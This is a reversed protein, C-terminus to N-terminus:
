ELTGPPMNMLRTHLKSRVSSCNKKMRKLGRKGPEYHRFEVESLEKSLVACLSAQLIHPRCYMTNDHIDSIRDYEDMEERVTMAYGALDQLDSLSANPNKRYAKRLAQLVDENTAFDKICEKALAKALGPPSTSIYDLTEKWVLTWRYESTPSPRLSDYIDQALYRTQEDDMRAPSPTSKYRNRAVISIGGSLHNVSLM